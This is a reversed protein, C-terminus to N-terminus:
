RPWRSSWEYRYRRRKSLRYLDNAEKEPLALRFIGWDKRLEHKRGAEAGRMSIQDLRM